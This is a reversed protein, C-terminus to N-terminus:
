NSAIRNVGVVKVISGIDETSDLSVNAIEPTGSNMGGFSISKSNDTTIASASLTLQLYTTWTNVGKVYTVVQTGLTPDVLVVAKPKSTDYQLTVRLYEFNVPTESLAANATRSGSYLVTEGRDVNYLNVGNKIGIVKQIYIASGAATWTQGTGDSSKYRWQTSGAVVTWTIGDSSKLTAANVYTYGNALPAITQLDISLSSASPDLDMSHQYGVNNKYIFKVRDFNTVAESLVLNANYVDIGAGSGASYLVTEVAGSSEVWAGNKRVYEKGDSPAEKVDVSVGNSDVNVGGNTAPKVSWAITGAGASQTVTRTIGDGAIGQLCMKRTTTTWSSDSKNLQYVVVEDCQDSSTHTSISRVYWFEARNASSVSTVTNLYSLHALRWQNTSTQVRCYLVANKQYADWFNAWTSTGYELVVMNDQKETLAGAVATGSQANASSANYTQDVTPISPKNKIYDAATNDSQNWDAQAQTFSAGITVQNNSETITVNTGAVLAQETPKNQIYSPDTSDSETWDAQVQSAPAAGWEPDGSSDVKLVKGEDASTSAPVQKVGAIAGAVATGSQANASSANYTQDVTPITPKNKIYAPDTNDSENWDAQEQTFTPAAQWEPDGNNDVGLLKGADQATSAPLGSTATEWSYSGTGGSYSAKLVKGDDSSTVAPVNSITPLDTLDNYSGSFAIAALDALKAYYTSIDVGNKDQEARTAYIPDGNISDAFVQSMNAGKKNTNNM